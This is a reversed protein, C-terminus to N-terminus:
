DSRRTCARRRSDICPRTCRCAVAVRLRRWGGGCCVPLLPSTVPLLRTPLRPTRYLGIGGKGEGGAMEEEAVTVACGAILLRCCM